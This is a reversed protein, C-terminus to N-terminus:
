ERLYTIFTKLYRGLGMIGKAGRSLAFLRLKEVPDKANAMARSAKDKMEAEARAGSTQPRRNSMKQGRVSLLTKWPSVITILAKSLLISKTLFPGWLTQFHRM